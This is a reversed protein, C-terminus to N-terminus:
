LNTKNKIKTLAGQMGSKQHATKEILLDEKLIGILSDLFEKEQENLSNKQCLQTFQALAILKSTFSYTNNQSDLGKSRQSDEYQNKWGILGKANLIKRAAIITSRSYDTDSSLSFTGPFVGPENIDVVETKWSIRSFLSKLVLYEPKKIHSVTLLNRLEKITLKKDEAIKEIFDKRLKNKRSSLLGIYAELDKRKMLSQVCESGIQQSRSM